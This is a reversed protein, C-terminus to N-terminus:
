TTELLSYAYPPSSMVNIASPKVLLVCPYRPQEGIHLVSVHETLLAGCHCLMQRRAVYHGHMKTGDDWAFSLSLRWANCTQTYTFCSCTESFLTTIVCNVCFNNENGSM